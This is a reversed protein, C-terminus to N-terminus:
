CCPNKVDDTFRMSDNLFVYGQSILYQAADLNGELCALMLPTKYYKDKQNVDFGRQIAAKLSEKDNYKIVENVHIFTSELFNFCQFYLIKQHIM